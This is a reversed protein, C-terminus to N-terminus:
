DIPIQTGHANKCIKQGLKSVAWFNGKHDMIYIRPETSKQSTGKARNTMKLSLIIYQGVAKQGDIATLIEFSTFTACWDDFCIDEGFNVVNIERNSSSVTWLLFYLFVITALAKITGVASKKTAFKLLIIVVLFMVTFLSVFFILEQM